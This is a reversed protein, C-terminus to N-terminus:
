CPFADRLALDMVASAPLGYAKPRAELYKLYVRRYQDLTLGKPECCTRPTEPVTSTLFQHRDIFGEIWALCRVAEENNPIAHEITRCHQELEPARLALATTFASLLCCAALLFRQSM